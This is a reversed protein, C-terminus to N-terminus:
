LSNFAIKFDLVKVLSRAVEFYTVYNNGVNKSFRYIYM